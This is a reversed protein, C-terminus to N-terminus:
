FVCLFDLFHIKWIHIQLITIIYQIYYFMKDLQDKGLTNHFDRLLPHMVSMYNVYQRVPDSVPQSTSIILQTLVKFTFGTVSIIQGELCSCYNHLLTLEM